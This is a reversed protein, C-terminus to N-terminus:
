ENENGFSVSISVLCQCFVLHKNRKSKVQTLNPDEQNISFCCCFVIVFYIFSYVFLLGWTFLSSYINILLRKTWDLFQCVVIILHM